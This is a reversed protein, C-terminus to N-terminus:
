IYIQFYEFCQKLLKTYKQRQIINKKFFILLFKKLENNFDM